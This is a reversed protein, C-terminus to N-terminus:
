AQVFTWEGTTQDQVISGSTGNLQTLHFDFAVDEGLEQLAELAKVAKLYAGVTKQKIGVTVYKSM